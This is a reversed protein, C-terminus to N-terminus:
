KSDGEKPTVLTGKNSRLSIFALSAARSWHWFWGPLSRWTTPLDEPMNDTVAVLGSALLALREPSM